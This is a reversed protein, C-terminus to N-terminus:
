LWWLWITIQEVPWRLWFWSSSSSMLSIQHCHCHDLVIVIGVWACAVECRNWAKSKCSRRGPSYLFHYSTWIYTGSLGQCNLNDELVMRSRSTAPKRAFRGGKWGGFFACRLFVKCIGTKGTNRRCSPCSWWTHLHYNTDTYNWHNITETPSETAM